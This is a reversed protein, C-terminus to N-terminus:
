QSSNPNQKSLIQFNLTNDMQCKQPENVESNQYLSYQPEPLQFLHESIDLSNHHQKINSKLSKQVTVLFKFPKIKHMFM